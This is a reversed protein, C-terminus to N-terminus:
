MLISVINIIRVLTSQINLWVPDKNDIKPIVMKDYGKFIEKHLRVEDDM